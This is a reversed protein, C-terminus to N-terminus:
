ARVAVWLSAALFGLGVGALTLVVANRIGIFVGLADSDDEADCADGQNCNGTCPPCAPGALDAARGPLPWPQRALDDLDPKADFRARSDQPTGQTM